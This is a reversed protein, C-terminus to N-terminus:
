CPHVSDAYDLWKPLSSVFASRTDPSGAARWDVVDKIEIEYKRWEFWNIMKLM